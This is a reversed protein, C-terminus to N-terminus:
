VTAGAFAQGREQARRVINGIQQRTLGYRLGAAEHSLGEGDPKPAIAKLISANRLDILANREAPLQLRQGGYARV